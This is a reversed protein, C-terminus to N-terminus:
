SWAEGGESQYGDEEEGVKEFAKKLLMDMYRDYANKKIELHLEVQWDILGDMCLLLFFDDLFNIPMELKKELSDKPWSLLM